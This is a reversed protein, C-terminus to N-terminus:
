EGNNLGGLYEKLVSLFKDWEESTTIHIAYPRKSDKNPKSTFGAETLKIWLEETVYSDICSSKRWVSSNDRFLFHSDKDYRKYYISDLIDILEEYKPLDKNFKNRKKEEYEIVSQPKPIYKKEKPEPYPQNLEDNDVGLIENASKEKSWWRKLTSTSVTVTKGVEDGTLYELIVTATNPEKVIKATVNPHKKSTYIDM